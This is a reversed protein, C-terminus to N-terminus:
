KKLTFKKKLHFAIGVADWAHTDIDMNALLPERKILRKIVADKPLQGKWKNVEIPIFELGRSMFMGMFVGVLCALKYINGTATAAHGKGDAFYQPFECYVKVVNHRQFIPETNTCLYETAMVWDDNSPPTLVYTAIPVTENRWNSLSWIAIGTGRIGPDITAITM